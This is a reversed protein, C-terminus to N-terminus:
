LFKKHNCNRGNDNVIRGAIGGCYSAGSIEGYNACGEITASTPRMVYGVIGGTNSAGYVEAKNVCNQITINGGSVRAIIGAVNTDSSYIYSDDLILNKITTNDGQSFLAAGNSESNIYLGKITHNGGDFVNGPTVPTWQNEEDCNLNVDELVITTTYANGSSNEFDNALKMEAFDWMSGINETGGYKEVNPEDVIYYTTPNQACIINQEDIYSIYVGLEELIEIQSDSWKDKYYALEGNEIVLKDNYHSDINLVDNINGELIVNENLFQKKMLQKQLDVIETELNVKGASSFLADDIAVNVVVSALILMLVITVILAIITIGKNNM